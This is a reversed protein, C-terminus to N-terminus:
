SASPGRYNLSFYREVMKKDEESLKSYWENVVREEEDRKANYEEIIKMEEENRFVERETSWTGNLGADRFQKSFNDEVYIPRYNNIDDLIEKARQTDTIGFGSKIILIKRADSLNIIGINHDFGIYSIKHKKM